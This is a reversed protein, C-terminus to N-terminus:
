KLVFAELDRVNIEKSEFGFGIRNVPFNNFVTKM